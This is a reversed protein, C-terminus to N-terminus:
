EGVARLESDKPELSAVQSSEGLSRAPIGVVTEGSPVDKLVVANAGVQARDGLVIRGLLVAGAGINVARGLRPAHYPHELHRNGLTVGQRLVCEDGIISSGHVVIGHQHEFIVRRGIWASFPLEIGYRDRCHRFLFRYVLSLPARLIRSRVGMRWVGFRHVALARFGPRMWDGEHAALDEKWIGFLGIEAHVPELELSPVAGPPLGDPLQGSLSAPRPTSPSM